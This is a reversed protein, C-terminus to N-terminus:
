LTSKQPKINYLLSSFYIMYVPTDFHNVLVLDFFLDAIDTLANVVATHDSRIVAVYGYLQVIMFKEAGRRADALSKHRRFEDALNVLVSVNQLRVFPKLRRGFDLHM